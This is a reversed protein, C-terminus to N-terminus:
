NSHSSQLVILTLLGCTFILPNAASLPEAQPPAEKLLLHSGLGKGGLGAQLIKDPLPEVCSEVTSLDMRLLTNWFRLM